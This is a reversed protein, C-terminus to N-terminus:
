RRRQHIVSLQCGLSLVASLPGKRAVHREEPLDPSLICCSAVTRVLSYLSTPKTLQMLAKRLLSCSFRCSVNSCLSLKWCELLPQILGKIKPSFIGNAKWGHFKTLIQHHGGAKRFRHLFYVFPKCGLRKKSSSPRPCTWMPHTEQAVSMSVFCNVLISALVHKM